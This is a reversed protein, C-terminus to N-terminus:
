TMGRRGHWIGYWMVKTGTGGGWIYQVCPQLFLFFLFLLLLFLFATYQIKGYIKSVIKRKQQIQRGTNKQPSWPYLILVRNRIDLEASPLFHIKPSLLKRCFFTKLWFSDIWNAMHIRYITMKIELSRRTGPGSWCCCSWPRSARTERGGRSSGGRSPRSASRRCWPWSGRGCSSSTGPWHWRSSPSSSPSNPDTNLKLPPTLSLLFIFGVFIRMKSTFSCLRWQKRKWAIRRYFFFTNNKTPVKKGSRYRNVRGLVSARYFLKRHRAIIWPWSHHCPM